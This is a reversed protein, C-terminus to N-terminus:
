IYEIHELQTLSDGGIMYFNLNFMQAISTTPWSNYHVTRIAVHYQLISISRNTLIAFDGFLLTVVKRVRGGVDWLRRRVLRAQAAVRRIIGRQTSRNTLGLRLKSMLVIVVRRSSSNTRTDPPVATSLKRKTRFSLCRCISEVM